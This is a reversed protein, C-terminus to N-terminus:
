GRLETDRWNSCTPSGAWRVPKDTGSHNFLLSKLRLSRPPRLSFFSIKCTVKFPSLILGWRISLNM